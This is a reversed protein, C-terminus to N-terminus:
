NWFFSQERGISKCWLAVYEATGGFTANALAYPLGVGLARVEMPFLEAKVLGGIATYFSVGALAALVLWFAAYGNGVNGLAHRLPITTLTAFLGFFIMSLRRGIRDSLAGFAPQFLMYVLLVATMVRSATRAELGATNVLYKQMYTTYTYFVLSGGAAFGLVTFFARDYWEVLNGSSAGVIALIPHSGNQGGQPQQMDISKSKDPTESVAGYQDMDLTGTKHWLLIINWVSGLPM